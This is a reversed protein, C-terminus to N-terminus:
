TLTIAAADTLSDGDLKGTITVPGPVTGSTYTATYSGDDHDTVGEITGDGTTALEVVGGSAVLDNGFQDKLQVTITSTSVGGAVISTPSATITSATLSAEAPTIMGTNTTWTINYSATVNTAGRLITGTPTLTKGTGAAASNFSQTFSPADGSALSGSTVTPTGASSTTGDAIKNDSEATVTIDLKAVSFTRDVNPAATYSGNGAQSARITCSGSAGITVTGGSTVTCVPTTLSSFTVTLGSSATASVGFPADGYTAGLLPDFTITQATLTIVVAQTAQPAANYNASGAQDGHITCTGPTLFTVVGASISCVSSPAGAISFTVANGSAGGTATPTYTPGGAVPPVPAPSTFTIAQDAKQVTLTGSAYNFSYDNDVGGSCTITYNAVNAHAGSVACTPATDIGGASDTYAFAGYAFTFAPDPQGYTITKDAATVSIPLKAVMFGQSVPTAPLWTGNGAQSAQVTCTGAHLITVNSGSVSCVAPTTSGFTVALGSSATASVGFPADGYDKGGLGGFSITQATRTIAFSQQVQTAPNYNGNGAQNANLVCTGETLFSVTGAAISCVSTSTANVTIAVALLSTASAAPIYTGGVAAGTPAPSTFTVTQSAKQVTLTGSAYTFSYDNDVGGSCTIPYTAANAHTGSVGCTPPTDIGGATDSYAFTGYAFTFAPDPQGYTITKDAATVSIPLQAIAFTRSVPTAPAFTTGNGAQAAQITCNGAHVITVTGGATVTCVTTTTSSFSVTLGSTASATVVFPAAGYTRGVPQTFTITQTALGVTVAQTVQPAANYNASGAQNAQITCTGAETFTVTSGAITCIGSSAPAITFTVPLGSAGGTATVGYTGGVTAGTPATSTFTIAQNAQAIADAVTGATNNYNGTVDTFTWPDTPYTGANIHTTGTLVLGALTEAQVGLCTGAATHPSGNFTVSYGTITCAANAKAITATTTNVSGISYNGADAGALTFGTGTVTKGPAAAATGFAATAGAFTCTVADGVSAGAPTCGTITATTTGDYTKAAATFSVTLAKAAITLQGALYGFQYNNDLGGSCTIAYPSGAVETHPGAIGCTPPTDIVTSTEGNVFAGYAFTFAPDPDGYTIAKDAATVTVTARTISATTTPQTLTYSPAKVGGLTLGSVQVTKGAGVNANPTFAGTAAGKNLTIVDAGVVGVLAASATNLTATTTGDYAKNGATIGTVTLAKPAVSFSRTVDGAPAYTPDGAQSAQVQCTGAAVITATTGAVTCVSSTLSTLTVPLGSDASATLAVPPGGYTANSLTDFTIAQPTVGTSAVSLAQFATPAPNWNGNGGQDANLQCNGSGPFSVVNGAITCVGASAADVTITVPLLSDSAAAATYTPGDKVSFAPKTTTFSVVQDAKDIAATTTPQILTYKAADAGALALGAVQVTKGTAANADAFTGTVGSANLTVLDSGIIGAFTAGTTVVTAATTGDYTKDEASVGMVTLTRRAVAFTQTSTRANWTQDGSQGAKVTCTGAGHFNVTGGSLSCTAWSSSPISLTVPLGSSSSAAVDYGTGAYIAGSPAASTFTVGQDQKGSLTLIADLDVRAKTASKITIRHSVGAGSTLGRVYQVNRWRTKSSAQKIATPTVRIGDVYVKFSGRGKAKSAVIAFARVNTVTITATAGKKTTYREKKGSYHKNSSTKWGSSYKFRSSKEQYRTLRSTLSPVYAGTQGNTDATRVKWAYTRNTALNRLSATSTTAGSIVGPFTSGADTSQIIRYSRLSASSPVVGCWSLTMPITSGMTAGKRFGLQPIDTVPSSAPRAITVAVTGTDSTIGDTMVYSFLDIGTNCGAPNYTVTTGDTTVSGRSGQTVATITLPRTPGSGGPGDNALVDIVTPVVAAIGERGDNNAKVPAAAAPAVIAVPTTVVPSDAFLGEVPVPTGPSAAAATLPGAVAFALVASLLGIMRAHTTMGSCGEPAGVRRDLDREIAVRITEGPDGHSM